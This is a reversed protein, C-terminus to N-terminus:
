ATVGKVLQVRLTEMLAKRKKNWTRFFLGHKITTAVWPIAAYSFLLVLWSLINFSYKSLLLDTWWLAILLCACEMGVLSVQYARVTKSRTWRDNEDLLDM